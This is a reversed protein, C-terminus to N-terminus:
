KPWIAEIRAIAEAEDDVDLEDLNFWLEWEGLEADATLSKLSEQADELTREIMSDFAMRHAMNSSLNYTSM